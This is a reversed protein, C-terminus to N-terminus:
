GARKGDDGRGKNGNNCDKGSGTVAAADNNRGCGKKISQQMHGGGNSNGGNDKNSVEAKV